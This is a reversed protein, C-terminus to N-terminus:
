SKLPTFGMNLAFEEPFDEDNSLEIYESRRIVDEITEMFSESQLALVAGNGAANGVQIIKDKLEYPFLGIRLASDISLYNGFGGAIIFKDVQDFAIGSRKLLVSVGAAIAGKALQVERVDQPTIVIDEDIGNDKGPSVLFVQELVGNEDVIGEEVMFAIIDILGSGCISVPRADAITSFGTRDYRSIAGDFAGSGCSINAGEFAPGAAAACCWIKEKTVLAMEGNTGIDVYLFTDFDKDDISAIGTVIDAGVYASVSPLLHVEGGSHIGIGIERSNFVRHSTFVPTFPAFAMPGPDAGALIHLMTTNGTIVIKTFCEPAVGLQGSYLEVQRNISQKTIEQLEYLGNKKSICYSIRSIVDAGFRVQSNLESHVGIQSGNGLNILYYVMTTTGIDVALGLPSSCLGATKGPMFPVSRTFRYQATMVESMRRDPLHVTIDKEVSYRCSIVTGIGDIIVRCKGCTGKGGCPAYIDFDLDRIVSLLNSGKEVTVIEKRGSSIIELRIAM